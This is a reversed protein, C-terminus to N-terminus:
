LTMQGFFIASHKGSHALRSDGPGHTRTRAVVHEQRRKRSNSQKSNPLLSLFMLRHTHVFTRQEPLFRQPSLVGEEELVQSTVSNKSGAGSPGGMSTVKCGTVECLMWTVQFTLLPSPAEWFAESGGGEGTWSPPERLHARGPRKSNVQENKRFRTLGSPLFLPPYLLLDGWRGGGVGVGGQARASRPPGTRPTPCHGMRSITEGGCRGARWVGTDCCAPVQIHNQASNLPSPLHCSGEDPGRSLLQATPSTM